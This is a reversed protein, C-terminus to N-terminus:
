RINIVTLDEYTELITSRVWFLGDQTGKVFAAGNPDPVNIDGLPIINEGQWLTFDVESVYWIYQATPQVQTNVPLTQEKNQLTDPDFGMSSGTSTGWWFSVVFFNPDTILGGDCSRKCGSDMVWGGTHYVERRAKVGEYTTTDWEPYQDSYNEIFMCMRWAYDQAKYFEEKAMTYVQNTTPLESDTSFHRFVGGEAIQFPAKKIYVGLAWAILAPTVYETVLYDYVYGRDPDQLKRYFPTGIMPELHLRQAELIYPLIKEEDINFDLLSAAKLDDPTVIIKSRIDNLNRDYDVRSM